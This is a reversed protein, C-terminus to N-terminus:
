CRKNSKAVSLLCKLMLLTRLNLIQFLYFSVEIEKQQALQVSSETMGKRLM